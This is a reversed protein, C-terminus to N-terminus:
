RHSRSVCPLCRGTKPRSLEPRTCAGNLIDRCEQQPIGGKHSIEQVDLFDSERRDLEQLCMLAYQMQLPNSM